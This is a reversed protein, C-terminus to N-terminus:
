PATVITIMGLAAGTVPDFFRIEQKGARSLRLMLRGQDLRSELIETGAPLNIESAAVAATGRANLRNILTTVLVVSGLVLLVGLGIVVAKLIGVNQQMSPAMAGEEDKEM